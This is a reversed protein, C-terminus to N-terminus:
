VIETGVPTRNQLSTSTGLSRNLAGTPQHRPEPTSTNTGAAAETPQLGTPTGLTSHRNTSSHLHPQTGGREHQHYRTTVLHHQQHTRTSHMVQEWARPAQQSAMRSIARLHGLMPSSYAPSQEPLHHIHHTCHGRNMTANRTCEAHRNGNQGTQRNMHTHHRPHYANQWQLSRCAILWSRCAAEAQATISSGPSAMTSQLVHRNKTRHQAPTCEQIEATCLYESYTCISYLHMGPRKLHHTPQWALHTAEGPTTYLHHRDTSYTSHSPTIPQQETGEAQQMGHTAWETGNQSTRRHAQEPTSSTCPSGAQSTRHHLKRSPPTRRSPEAKSHQRSLTVAANANQQFNELTLVWESPTPRPRSLARYRRPRNQWTLPRQKSPQSTGPTICEGHFHM